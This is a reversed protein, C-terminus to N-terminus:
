LSLLMKVQEPNHGIFSIDGYGKEDELVKTYIAKYFNAVGVVARTRAAHRKKQDKIDDFSPLPPAYLSAYFIKFGEKLTELDLGPYSSISSTLESNEFKQFSSAIYGLGCEDLCKQTEQEVLRDVIQSEITGISDLWRQSQASTLGSTRSFLITSLLMEVGELTDCSQVVTEFVTEFLSRLSFVDIIDNGDSSDVDFGPSNNRVEVISKILSTVLEIRNREENDVFVDVLATYVKTSATFAKATERLCEVLVDVLVCKEDSYSDENTLKKVVKLTASHYFILLGAISYLESINKRLIEEEDADKLDDDDVRRALSAVVQTIRAKLPRSVGSLAHSLLNSASMSKTVALEDDNDDFLDGPEKKGVVSSSIECELSLARHVHALMDGVYNQPDHAKMEIPPMGNYGRTLALLFRRTVESRRLTSILELTHSHFSPTHKLTNLARLVCPHSLAEDLRDDDLEMGQQSIHGYSVDDLGLYSQM